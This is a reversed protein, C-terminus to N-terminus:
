PCDTISANGASDIAKAYITTSTNTNVDSTLTIGPSVFTTNATGASRATTCSSDFYLTVTSTESASGLITPRLSSGSSGPTISTYSVTPASTDYTVTNDTSTSASNTNGFSDSVAGSNITPIITGTVGIATVSATWTINDTTALSWTLSNGTGNRVLDAATFTTPDVASSFVVTFVVPVTNSPDAQTAGQNITVTLPSANYTITSVSDSAAINANGAADTIGGAALRPRVTGNTLGAAAVNFTTQNGSDTITWTIGTSTGLNSFDAATLSAVSIPESFTLTFNIPTSNTSAVQGSAKDFSVITPAANDHTYTTMLTCSSPNNNAAVAKAYITTSANASLSATSVTQGAGASLATAGSIATGCTVDSYLTVTAATSLTM